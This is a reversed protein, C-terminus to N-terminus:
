TKKRRMAGLAGLGGLLLLAPAPLPVESVSLNDIAGSGAFRFTISQTFVSQGPTFHSFYNDANTQGGSNYGDAVITVPQNQELDVLTVGLFKVVKDFMFTISGGSWNDDVRSRDENVILVNGLDQSRM